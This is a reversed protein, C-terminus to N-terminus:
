CLFLTRYFKENKVSKTFFSYIHRMTQDRALILQDMIWPNVSRRLNASEVFNLNIYIKKIMLKYLKSEDSVLLLLNSRFVCSMKWVWLNLDYDCRFVQLAIIDRYFPRAIQRCLTELSYWECYQCWEIAYFPICFNSLLM